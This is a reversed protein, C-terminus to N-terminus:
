PASEPQLSRRLQQTEDGVPFAQEDIQVVPVIGVNSNTVFAESAEALLALPIVQERIPLPSKKLLHQRVTGPLLDGDALPTAWGSSLRVFINTHPTELLNEEPDLFLATDFGARHAEKGARLRGSYQFTKWALYPQGKPVPSRCTRLRVGSLPLEPFTASMWVIGPKGPRGATVNLRVIVDMATLSRVYQTVQEGNPLREPAIDIELMAATRVLREIHLPWLWPVGHFTRTCEWVGRGFLLGEDSPDIHFQERPVIRGDLWLLSVVRVAEEVIRAPCDAPLNLGYEKLLASPDTSAGQGPSPDSWSGVVISSWLEEPRTPKQPPM